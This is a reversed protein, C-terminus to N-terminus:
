CVAAVPLMWGPRRPATAQPFFLYAALIAIGPLAFLYIRLAMEGGYGQMAFGAFPVCLLVFAVRDDLALHRRRALGALALIIVTGAFAVRSYLVLSHVSASGSIRGSVSSTVNSGLAGIGGFLSSMHGSWFAVAAFSVWAAFITGFLVPLGSLQCRR